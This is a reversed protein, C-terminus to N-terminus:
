RRRPTRRAHAAAVDVRAGHELAIEGRPRAEAPDALVGHQEVRVEAGPEEDAHEQGRGLEGEVVGSGSRQPM